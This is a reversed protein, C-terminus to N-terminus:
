ALFPADQSDFDSESLGESLVADLPSLPDSVALDVDSLLAVFVSFGVAAEL